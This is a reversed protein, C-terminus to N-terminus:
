SAIIEFVQSQESVGSVKENMGDRSDKVESVLVSSASKEGGVDEQIEVQLSAPAAADDDGGVEEGELPRRVEWERVGVKAGLKRWREMQVKKKEECMGVLAKWYVEHEYGFECEGGFEKWVQPSTFLGDPVVQPNFKMKPRTIPDVFPTIIKFFANILFPLNIIIARGLHEPYHTQLIDLVQNTKM